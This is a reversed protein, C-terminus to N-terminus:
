QSEEKRGAEEKWGEGSELRTGDGTGGDGTELATELAAAEWVSVASEM